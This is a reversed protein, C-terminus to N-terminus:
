FSCINKKSEQSDDEKPPQVKEKQKRKTVVVKRRPVYQKAKKEEEKTSDKPDLKFMETDGRCHCVLILIYHVKKEYNSANRDEEIHFWSHGVIVDRKWTKEYTHFSTHFYYVFNLLHM